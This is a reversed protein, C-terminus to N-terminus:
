LAGIVLNRDCQGALQLSHTVIVITTGEERRITQLIDLIHASNEEDLNGTPEDMLLVSPRNALARAIAVRQQEGGSLESSYHNWRHGLGVQELLQRGRQSDRQGAITMPMLVNELANFDSLLHHFQFVFGIHEARYRALFNESAGKLSEGRFFVEGEDPRDLGGLLHLLTSKGTGSKGTIAVLEGPLIDIDLGGLVRVSHQGAMHYLRALQRGQLIPQQNPTMPDTM